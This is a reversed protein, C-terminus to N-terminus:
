KGFYARLDSWTPEAGTALDSWRHISWLDESSRSLRFEVQGRMRRPCESTEATHGVRLNYEQLLIVSDAETTERMPVLELRMISDAPVFSLLQNLYNEEEPKGWSRFLGPFASAVAPDAVYRFSKPTASTDSLCRLLNNKNKESIANKLNVLVTAPSTPQIWSSQKSQPEEPERTSFPTKCGPLASLIVVGYLLRKLARQLRNLEM